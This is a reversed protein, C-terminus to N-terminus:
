FTGSIGGPGAVVTGGLIEARPLGAVIMWIAAPTVAAGSGLTILGATCMGGREQTDSCGVATFVIGVVAAMGGLATFTVGTAFLGQSTPHARLQMPGGRAYPGLDPVVMEDREDRSRLLISRTPDVWRTCPTSCVPGVDFIVDWKVRADTSVIDLRVTGPPGQQETAAMPQGAVAGGQPVAVPAGPQAGMPAGPQALQPPVQQALAARGPIEVLFAQLPSSCAANPGQDTTQGCAKLDGAGSLLQDGQIAAGGVSLGDASLQGRVSITGKRTISFAGLTVTGIVHTAQGCEGDQPIDKPQLAQLAVQGATEIQVALNGGATLQGRLTILDPLRAQLDAPSGIEFHQSKQARHWVYVGKLACGSLVRMGGQSYSVAVAGRHLLAELNSREPAPWEVLMPAPAQPAPPDALALGPGFLLAVLLHPIRRTRM